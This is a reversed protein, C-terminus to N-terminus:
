VQLGTLFAHLKQFQGPTLGEARVGPDLVFHAWAKELQSANFRSGLNSSLKKRPQIFAAKVFGVFSEPPIKESVGPKRVFTLVRSGVNPVPHFDQPGADILTSVEWYTQAVISLLGYNEQGKQSAIRVAVEKQFMFILAQFPHSQLCLEMVLSAAIQYPLNSVLLSPAQIKGKRVLEQWDHLLADGPVVEFGKVRWYEVLGSDFECLLLAPGLRALDDTLAGFGPGIEVVSQLNFDKILQSSKEILRQVIRPNVLFNQGLKKNPRLGTENFIRDLEKKTHM